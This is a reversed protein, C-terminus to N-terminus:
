ESICRVSYGPIFNPLFIETNSIYFQHPSDIGNILAIEPNGDPELSNAWWNTIEGKSTFDFRSTTFGAPLANFGSSNTGGGNKWLNTSKLKEPLGTFGGQATVLEQWDNGSPIRWGKPALGRPDIVAYYNYLLGYIPGNETSNEYYCWAPIKNEYSKLWEENSRVEVILDGNQFKKVDLNKAMWTQSGIQIENQSKLQDPSDTNTCSSAFWLM